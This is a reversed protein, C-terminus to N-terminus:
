EREALRPLLEVVPNEQVELLPEADGGPLAEVDRLQRGIVRTRKEAEGITNSAEELKKKTKALVDGFKSFETKVAGLIEWVESSRKEIALTRFGMQLSSLIATLTTPGCLTVRWDRQLVDFLGPRRLVEAYLGEIPLYLLAFDSTNPPDIYKECISKAELRVRAELAKSASEVLIPDAAEQAEQLRQFDELPFKCDIPLWVPMDGRGPLRIAFEVRERSGAKTAVNKEYQEPTLVQELLNGLQIEGWTGRTKVNTLVRKLDGVGAALSQMEGLGKHVQELRESVHKFSESLRQELTKHLKEDVTARMEELKKENGSRLETLRLEVTERLQGIRRENADSLNSLNQTLTQASLALQSTLAQGIQTLAAAQEERGARAADLAERRGTMIADRLEREMRDNDRALQEIRAGASSGRWALFVCLALLALALYILLENM